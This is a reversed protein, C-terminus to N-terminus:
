LQGIQGDGQIFYSVNNRDEQIITAVNYSLQLTAGAVPSNKTGRNIISVVKMSADFEYGWAVSVYEPVIQAGTIYRGKGNYSGGYSFNVNYTFEVVNMNFGNVYTVKYKRSKPYSWNDLDMAEITKGAQRPLVSVPAWSTNVVPKGKKVIAYVREGFAIIQDAVAIVQGIEGGNMMVSPEFNTKNSNEVQPIEEIKVKKIKFYPDHARDLESTSAFSSVALTAVLAGLLCKKLNM